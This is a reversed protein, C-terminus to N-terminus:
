PLIKKEAAGMNTEVRVIIGGSELAERISGDRDIVELAVRGKGEVRRGGTALRPNKVDLVEIRGPLALVRLHLLLADKDSRNELVVRLKGDKIEASAIGIPSKRRLIILGALGLLAVGVLVVTYVDLTSRRGASVPTSRAGVMKGTVKIYKLSTSAYLRGNSYLLVQFGYTGAKWGGKPIYNYRVETNGLPLLPISSVTVSEFPRGNYIVKLVVTANKLPSFLNKLTADIYIYGVKGESNKAPLAYFDLFYVTRVILTVSKQQNASVTFGTSNLLHGALYAEAKYEGPAVIAKLSGTDSSEVQYGSPLALLVVHAPVPKGNVDVTRVSVVASAGTVTVRAKLAGSPVAISENGVNRIEEGGVIVTYNGPPCNQSASLTVYILRSEGPRLTFENESFKVRLLDTPPNIQYIMRVRITENSPNSILVTSGSISGGVPVRYTHAYFDGSVGIYAAVSPVLLLILLLSPLALWRWSLGGVGSM